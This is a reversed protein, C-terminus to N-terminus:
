VVTGTQPTMLEEGDTFIIDGPTYHSTDWPLGIDVFVYRMRLKNGDIEEVQTPSNGNIRLDPPDNPCDDITDSFRWEALFIDLYLVELVQAGPTVVGSFPAAPRRWFGERTRAFPRIM